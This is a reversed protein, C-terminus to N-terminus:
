KIKENHVEQRIAKSTVLLVRGNKNETHTEVWYILMM